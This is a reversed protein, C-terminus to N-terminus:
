YEVLLTGNPYNAADPVTGGAVMPVIIAKTDVYQKPAAHLPDTPDSPLKIPVSSNHLVDNVAMRQQGGAYFAFGTGVKALYGGGSGFELGVGTAPTTIKQTFTSGTATFTAINANAYRMAIGGGGGFVNYTTTGFTLSQVTTPLTIAGTMTGGALPLYAGGGVTSDVYEKNALHKPDTPAPNCIPAKQFTQRGDAAVFIGTIGGPMQLRVIGGTDMYWYSDVGNFSSVATPPLRLPAGTAVVAGWQLTGDEAVGNVYQNSSKTGVKIGGLVSTTAAPLTYEVGGAAVKDDVYKKNAVQMDTTPAAALRFPVPAVVEGENFGLVSKTGFRLATSQNVAQFNFGNDMMFAVAGDGKVNIPGTMDGGTLPLYGTPKGVYLFGDTGLKATNDADASVTTPGAVGQPGEPGVAGDAGAEGQPGTPGVIPGANEFAAATDSWVWADGTAEVLYLDGQAASAPLDGVTAVRAIFRIGLGPIGQDGQDGKPGVEGQPGAPGIEGQAGAPGAPGVEGQPGTNGIDGKPGVEGQIGQPGEAGTDGKPGQAGDAGAIGQEGQPGAAGDAGAPGQAGDAGAPGVEGQPGAPGVEGQKGPLGDKGDAGAPGRIGPIGAPGEPGVEGQPGQIKGVDVFAGDTDSWSWANGTEDVVYTDGQSATAPLDAVTPVHGKLTIGTGAPGQPGPAGDEGVLRGMFEWATVINPDDIALAFYGEGTDNTIYFQGGKAGPRIAELDAYNNVRGMYRVDQGDQGPAGDQGVLRGLSSFAKGEPINSNAVMQWGEGLDDTIWFEGIATVGAVSALAAENDVRGNYKLGPGAPGAPGALGEPGQPGPLGVAASVVLWASGDWQYQV